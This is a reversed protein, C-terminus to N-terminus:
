NCRPDSALGTVGVRCTNVSAILKREVFDPKPMSGVPSPAAYSATSTLQYVRITNNGEVWPTVVCDVVVTFGQLAGAFAPVGAMANTCAAFPPNVAVTNEPSLIQYTAWEIGAKAAHYARTGLVDQTAATRQSLYISLMFVGLAALIVLLFLATVLSFGQTQRPIVDSFKHSM